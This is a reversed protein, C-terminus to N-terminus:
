FKKRIGVIVSAPIGIYMGINLLIVGIGIGLVESESEAYQMISLTSLMPTIGIKVMEKFIPNEREYDAVYPSFSYYFENFGSMFSVGLMTSMVKNDRVERLLQVQPALESGFAATAILCGGGKEKSAPAINDMSPQSVAVANGSNEIKNVLVDWALDSIPLTPNIHNKQVMVSEGQSILRTAGSVTNTVSVVGENVFVTVIDESPDYTAIYDTGRDGLITTGAQYSLLPSNTGWGQTYWRWISKSVDFVTTKKDGLDRLCFESNEGMTVINQVNEDLQIRLSGDLVRVSDLTRLYVNEKAPIWKGSDGRMIQVDGKVKVIKAPTTKPNIGSDIQSACSSIADMDDDHQTKVSEGSSSKPSVITNQPEATQQQTVTDVNCSVAKNSINFFPQAVSTSVMEYPLNTGSVSVYSYTSTTTFLVRNGLDVDHFDTCLPVNRMKTPKTHDFVAVQATNEPFGGIEDVPGQLDAYKCITSVYDISSNSMNDILTYTAGAIQISSLCFSNQAFSMPPYMLGSFAFLLIM